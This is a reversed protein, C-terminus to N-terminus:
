QSRSQQNAVSRSKAHLNRADVETELCSLLDTHTGGGGASSYRICHSRDASPFEAWRRALQDRAGSELALCHNVDQDFALNDALHCTPESNLTPIGEVVTANASALKPSPLPGPTNFGPTNDNVIRQKKTRTEATQVSAKSQAVPNATFCKASALHDRGPSTLSQGCSQKGAGFDSRIQAAIEILTPPQAACAGLSLATVMASLTRM